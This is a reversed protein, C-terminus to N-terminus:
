HTSETNSVYIAMRGSFSGEEKPCKFHPVGNQEVYFTNNLGYKSAITNLATPSRDSADFELQFQELACNALDEDNVNPHCNQCNLLTATRVESM